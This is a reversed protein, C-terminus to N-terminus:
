NVYGVGREGAIMEGIVSATIGLKTLRHQITDVLKPRVVLVYGIGMNFVRFMEERDINGLQQLWGFLPAPQWTSRDIMARCGEPLIRELNDVLGGGTIHAMGHIGLRTRPQDLLDLV